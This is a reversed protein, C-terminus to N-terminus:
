RWGRRTKIHLFLGDPDSVEGFLPELMHEVAQFNAPAVNQGCNEINAHPGSRPAVGTPRDNLSPSM